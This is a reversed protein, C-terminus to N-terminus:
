ASATRAVFALKDSEENIPDLLAHLEAEIGPVCALVHNGRRLGDRALLWNTRAGAESAILVGAAADWSNIHPEWYGDFRGCAVWALGLAGSALRSYECGSELLARVGRLHLDPPRRYSFGVNVRAETLKRAGSVCLKAGNLTSGRGRRAKFLERDLPDLILGFEIEEGRVLAISICWHPIHRAFNATGDIPDIVWTLNEGDVLGSPGGEECFFGDSPFACGIRSRLFEEIELDTETRPDQLGKSEVAMSPARYARLAIAGARRLLREAFRLRRDIEDSPM